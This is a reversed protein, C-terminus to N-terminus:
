ARWRTCRSLSERGFSGHETDIIIFDIDALVLTTYVEPATLRTFLGLQLEGVRWREKLSSTTGSRPM